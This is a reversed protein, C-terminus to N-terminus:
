HTLGVVLSLVEIVDSAGDATPAMPDTTANTFTWGYYTLAGQARVFVPGSRLSAGVAVRGGTIDASAFRTGLDGGSLVIRGEIAAFPELAGLTTSARVGIRISRYDAVPVKALETKSPATFQLQDRVFGGELAIGSDDGISWRHRLDVEINGWFTSAVAANMSDLVPQHNLGFGVKGYLSLGRLHHSGALELPWLEVAPGLLTQGVESETAAINQAHDYAFQRFGVDFDAGVAIYPRRPGAPEAHTEVTAEAGSGDGDGGGGGGGHRDDSGGGGGPDAVAMVDAAKLEHEEGPELDLIEDAVARGKIMVAVHHPGADVDLRQPANGKEVDDVVIKGGKLAADKIVLTATSGTLTFKFPKVKGRRPVTIEAIEPNFGDKRLIIPTTGLPAEFSCPTEACVAGSDIDNLYVTAGAPESEVDVKRGGGAEASGIWVVLVAGALLARRM